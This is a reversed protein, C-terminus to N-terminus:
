LVSAEFANELGPAARVRSAGPSVPQAQLVGASLLRFLAIFPISSANM